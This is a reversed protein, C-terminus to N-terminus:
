MLQWEGTALVYMGLLLNTVAHAAVCDWVNRTRLFLVTVSSFWVLEALWEAPHMSVALATALGVGMPHWLGLPVEWWRAQVPFRMVFGRFFFEEIVPVIVVLGLFRVALFAYAAAPWDALEALPNFASRAGVASLAGPLVQQGVWVLGVWLVTGLAGVLLAWRGIRLPFQWYVRWVWAMALVTCLLKGTYVVPYYRYPFQPLGFPGRREAAPQQGTKDAADSAPRASPSAQATTAAAPQHAHNAPASPELSTGLLYVILPLCYSLWPSRSAAAVTPQPSSIPPLPPM